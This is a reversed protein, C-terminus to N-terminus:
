GNPQRKRNDISDSNHLLPRDTGFYKKYASIWNSAMDHQATNLDLKRQCVLDHLHDELEDKVHANWQSSYSEPWLNRIDDTGGLGPTILHDVEYEQPRAGDMRYEHFVARQITPSPKREVPEGDMCIQSLSVPAVAGPTLTSDPVLPAIDSETSANWQNAVGFHRYALLGVCVILLAAAPWLAPMSFSKRLREPWNRPSNDEERAMQSQLRARSISAPVSADGGAARYARTFAGAMSEVRALRAACESCADLHAKIDAARASSLEGDVLSLLQADTLHRESHNM